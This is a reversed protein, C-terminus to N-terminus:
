IIVAGRDALTRRLAQVDVDAVGLGGDAAIAAATGAAEGTQNCNVMVRIAGYAGRDAGILRGAALVNVSGKPVLCRYPIQYFTPNEPTAERWRGRVAPEGPVCYDERGDLYRFTLGPKGSHHVDVRYSGNAIADEFRRGALVEEEALVHLTVAHRTERIGAAAALSSIRARELGPVKERAIKVIERVQRRGEIEVRTLDDADSCDADPVRTGAFFLEDPSGPVEASWMFGHPIRGRAEPSFVASAVLRGAGQVDAVGRMRFCTTPPQLDPLTLCPLGARHVLDGDGTADVFTSARIARRGSKDEIIAAEVTGDGRMVPAAFRAHLFPRVSHEELMRDLEIKLEETDLIFGCNADPKRVIVADLRKLREIVDLTLGAIITRRSETDLLSHWVCVLGGTATGGLFGQAEILAVKAGLRAAAIAAFVGTASGGVVCVDAEHAVPVDRAPERIAAMPKM